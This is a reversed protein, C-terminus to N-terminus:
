EKLDYIIEIVSRQIELSFASYFQTNQALQLRLANFMGALLSASPAAVGRLQIEHRQCIRGCYYHFDCNHMERHSHNLVPSVQSCM